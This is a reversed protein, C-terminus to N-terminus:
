SSLNNIKMQMMERLAPSSDSAAGKTWADRAGQKDGKSLLAEGRLDAVIANWGEGKVSELTKLAADAQKQQVQLRALRLNILAKLNEDKANALGQQLQASAKALENQNVFKQALSLSALAGYSNSNEAVFKEAATLDQAKGSQLAAVTNDYALSSERASNVQGNSWYRWGVLAGIGLVVGVVLAKGNEAFFNKIADRQENENEYIEM